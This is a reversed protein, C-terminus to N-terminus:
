NWTMEDWAAATDWRGDGGGGGCACLLASLGLLGLWSRRRISSPHPRHM